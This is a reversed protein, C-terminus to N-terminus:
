ATSEYDDTNGLAVSIAGVAETNKEVFRNFEEDQSIVDEGALLAYVNEKIEKPVHNSENALKFYVLQDNMYKLIQEDGAGPMKSLVCSTKANCFLTFLKETKSADVPLIAAVQPLYYPYLSAMAVKCIRANESMKLQTKVVIEPLAAMLRPPTIDDRKQQDGKHKINLRTIASQLVVMLNRADDSNEPFSPKRPGSHCYFYILMMTAFKDEKSVKKGLAKARIDVLNIPPRRGITLLTKFKEDFNFDFINNVENVDFGELKTELVKLYTHSKILSEM